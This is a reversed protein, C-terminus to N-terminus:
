FEGVQRDARQCPARTMSPSSEVRFPMSGLAHADRGWPDTRLSLAFPDVFLKTDTETAVDVFDLEFQSKNLGFYQSIKPM